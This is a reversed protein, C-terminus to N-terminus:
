GTSLYPLPVSILFIAGLWVTLSVWSSKLGLSEAVWARKRERGRDQRANQHMPNGELRSNVPLLALDKRSLLLRSESTKYVIVASWASQTFLMCSPPGCWARVILSLPENISLFSLIYRASCKGISSWNGFTIPHASPAASLVYLFGKRPLCFM